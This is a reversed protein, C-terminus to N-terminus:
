TSIWQWIGCHLYGKGPRSIAINEPKPCNKQVMLLQVQQVKMSTKANKSVEFMIQFSTPFRNEIFRELKETQDLFFPLFRAPVGDLEKLGGSRFNVFIAIKELKSSNKQVMLLHVKATTKANKSVEFM